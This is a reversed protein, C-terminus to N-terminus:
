SIVIHLGYCIYPELMKNAVAMLEPPILTRKELTITQEKADIYYVPFGAYLLVHTGMPGAPVISLWRMQEILENATM